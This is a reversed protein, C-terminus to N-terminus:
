IPRAAAVIICDSESESSGIELIDVEDSEVEVSIARQQRPRRGKKAVTLKEAEEAIKFVEQTSFVFKSQLKVRKGARKIKRSQLLERHEALERRIIVLESQTTELARTMREAYREAPSPVDQLGRIQSRFLANAERLETGEPPSSHLLSLDLSSSQGPTQPLLSQPTHPTSLKELVTIPSLPELGTAKWGSVINATTLARERARIYMKTWEVKQLRGSDLRSVADTEAALARKLPSFVSVDLPQLM